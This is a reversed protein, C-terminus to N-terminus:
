FIARLQVQGVHSVPRDESKKGDYTINLMIGNRFRTEYTLKWRFNQGTRLGQLIQFAAPTNTPYPLGEEDEFIIHIFSLQANLTNKDLISWRTSATLNRQIAPQDPMETLQNLSHKELYELSARFQIGKQYTVKPRVQWYYIYYDRDTFAESKNEQFGELIEAQINWTSNFGYRNRLGNERKRTGDTGNSLLTTTKFQNNFFDANFKANGKNFFIINRVANNASVLSSDSQYFPNYQEWQSGGIYQRNIQFSSQTSFKSIAKKWGKKDFWIAKPSLSLTQNLQIKNTRQFDNTPIIIRVFRISDELNNDTAIEFENNEQLGNENHDIWIFDGLQATVPTYLYEVKQQQGSGIQYDTSSRILGNKLAFNYTWQGLLTKESQITKEITTDVRLNRYTLNWFLQNRPNKSLAGEIKINDGITAKKFNDGQPKHDLRQIYSLRVRNPKQPSQIYYLTETFLFSNSSLNSSDTPTIRNDEQFSKIGISWDNLQTFKKSVELKPRFFRTTNLTSESNLLNFHLLVKYDNKNIFVEAQHKLGQYNDQQNFLSLGYSLKAWKERDLIFQINGLHEDFREQTQGQSPNTVNWDRAFEVPRYAELFEFRSQVWEYQGNTTLQWKKTKNLSRQDKFGFTWAVGKDNFDGIDSFTNVDLNSMAVETQISTNKALQYDIGLTALQKTQPAILQIIPEFNGQPQGTNPDPSVWEYVRGNATTQALQYNGNGLGVNSFTLIYLDQEPNTSYVFISDPQGNLLTDIKRYLIRDPVYETPVVSRQLASEVQDGITGLFQKQDSSLEQLGAQNKADQESYVNLNVQLKDTTYNSQSHILSRLFYRQSYEFEIVIRKDKTILQNPTFYVEGLNYDIVYDQNAGRTLLNGDIYVRESGSLIIIFTEGDAGILKYPGQNGEEGQFSMRTYRGRAIATSLSNNWENFKDGSLTNSYQIGQLKKYFNMFYSKPRKIEYDGLILQHQNKRLQIFIKDFEQLQQTNGQTQFPINNDTISALVEVDNNLKGSLQLNFSSNVSLDQTNGVSIGRSFSGNYDLGDMSQFLSQSKKPQYELLPYNGYKDIEQSKKHALKEDLKFNLTRYRILVSDLTPKQVWSLEASAYNIEYHSTDIAKKTSPDSIHVSNPVISLTDLILNSTVVKYAKEQVNSTQGFVSCNTVFLLIFLYYTCARKM